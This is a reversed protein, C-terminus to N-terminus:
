NLVTLISARGLSSPHVSTHIHTCAHSHIFSYTPPHILAHSHPFLRLQSRACTLLPHRMADILWCALLCENKKVCVSNFPDISHIFVRIYWAYMWGDVWANACVDMSAWWRKKRWWWTVQSRSIRLRNGDDDGGRGSDSNKWSTLNLNRTASLLACM